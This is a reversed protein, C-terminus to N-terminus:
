SVRISVNVEAEIKELVAVIHPENAMNKHFGFDTDVRTWEM